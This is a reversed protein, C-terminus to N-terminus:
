AIVRWRRSGIPSDCDWLHVKLYRPCARSAVASALAPAPALVVTRSRGAVCGESDPCSPEPDDSRMCGGGGVAGGGVARSWVAGRGVIGRGGACCFCLAGPGSVRGLGPGLAGRGGRRGDGPGPLQPSPGLLL